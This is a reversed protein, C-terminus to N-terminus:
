KVFAKWLFRGHQISVGGANAYRAFIRELIPRTEDWGPVEDLTFGWSIKVYLQYPDAFVEPVEFTWCSDMKLGGIELRREVMHRIPSEWHKMIRLPEPLEDNWSPPAVEMPNLQLLVAGPRGVRRADEIWNLPGRRSLLVDLSHDEAPISARGQVDESSDWLIFRVNSINQEGATQEALAIYAPVRDYAILSRCFPALSLTLEGHGCGADLADKQPSLLERVMELYVDEGNRPPLTSKWPYYYGTQLTALHLYWEKSHPRLTM